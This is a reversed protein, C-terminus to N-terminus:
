RNAPSQGAAPDVSRAVGRVHRQLGYLMKKVQDGRAELRAFTTSSLMGLDNALILHYQVENASAIALQLFRAFEKASSHGCGEVINAPVSAAARRLQSAIGPFRRETGAPICRYTALVLEHSKKWVDLKRFDQM